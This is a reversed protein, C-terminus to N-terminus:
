NTEIKKNVGFFGMRVAATLLAGTKLRHMNKIEIESLKEQVAKIDIMQGGAMGRAGTALSLERILRFRRLKLVDSSSLIAM